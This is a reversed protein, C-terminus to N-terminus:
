RGTLGKPTSQLENPSLGLLRMGDDLLKKAKGETHDKREVSTCPTSPRGQLGEELMDLLMDRFDSYGLYWGRRISAWEKDLEKKGTKSELLLHYHNTMLVYAHVIWGTRQVAEELTELFLVRDEDGQFVPQMSSELKARCPKMM